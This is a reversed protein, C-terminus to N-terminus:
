GLEPDSRVGQMEAYLAIERLIRALKTNRM